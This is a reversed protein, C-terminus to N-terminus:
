LGSIRGCGIVTATNITEYDRQTSPLLGYIGSLPMRMKFFQDRAAKTDKADEHSGNSAVRIVAASVFILAGGPTLLTARRAKSGGALRWSPVLFAFTV